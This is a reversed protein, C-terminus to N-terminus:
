PNNKNQFKVMYKFKDMLDLIQLQALGLDVADKADPEQHNVFGYHLIRNRKWFLRQEFFKAPSKGIAPQAAQLRSMLEVKQSLFEDFKRTTMLESVADLKRVIKQLKKLEKAWADTHSATTQSPLLDDDIAKWKLYLYALECEVSMAALIIALSWDGQGLQLTAKGFIKHSMRAHDLVWILAKCGSCRVDPFPTDGTTEATTTAGCERCPVSM